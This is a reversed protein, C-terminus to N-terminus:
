VSLIFYGNRNATNRDKCHEVRHGEFEGNVNGHVHIQKCWPCVIYVHHRDIGIPYVYWIGGKEFSRCDVAHTKRKKDVPFLQLQEVPYIIKMPSYRKKTERIYENVKM